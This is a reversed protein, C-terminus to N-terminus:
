RGCFSRRQGCPGIRLAKGQSDNLACVDHGHRSISHPTPIDCVLQLNRAWGHLPPSLSEEGQSHSPELFVGWARAADRTNRYCLDAADNLGREVGLRRGCSMPARPRHSLCLPDAFGRDTSDPRWVVQRRVQDLGELEASVCLEKLLARINDAEIQIRWVFGQDYADSRFAVDLGEIPRLRPERDLLSAASRQRVIVRAVPRGCQEGRQAHESACDDAVTHRTVPMLLAETEELLNVAVRRGRELQMQDHSMVPGVFMRSHLGPNPTMRTEM